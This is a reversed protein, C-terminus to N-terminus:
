GIVKWRALVQMQRMWESLAPHFGDAYLEDLLNVKNFVFRVPYLPAREEQLISSQRGRWRSKMQEARSSDIRGEQNVIADVDM